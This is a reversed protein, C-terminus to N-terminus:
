FLTPEQLSGEPTRQQQRPRRGPRSHGGAAPRPVAAARVLAPGTATVPADPAPAFLSQQPAAQRALTGAFPVGCAPCTDAGKIKGKSRVLRGALDGLVCPPCVIDDCSEHPCDADGPPGSAGSCLPGHPPDEGLQYFEDYGGDPAAPGETVRKYLAGCGCRWAPLSREWEEQKGNLFHLALGEGDLRCLECERALGTLEAAIRDIEAQADDDFPPEDIYGKIACLYWLADGVLRPDPESPSSPPAAAHDHGM